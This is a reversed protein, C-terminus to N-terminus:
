VKFKTYLITTEIRFKTYLSIITALKGELPSVNDSDKAKIKSSGKTTYTAKSYRKYYIYTANDRNSFM